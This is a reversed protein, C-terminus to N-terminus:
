IKIAYQVNGAPDIAYDDSMLDGPPMAACKPDANTQIKRRKPIEGKIKVRGTLTAGEEAAQTQPEAPSVRVLASLAAAFILCGAIKMPGGLISRPLARPIEWDAALFFSGRASARPDRIRANSVESG